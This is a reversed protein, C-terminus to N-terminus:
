PFFLKALKYYEPEVTKLEAVADEMPCSEIKTGRLTAMYGFKGELILEMAKVGFKTGLVRDFASPSGGRQTHGLVVHRTDVKAMKKINEAIVKGVGLKALLINGFGDYEVEETELELILDTSRIGEAVAVICYGDQDYARKVIKVVEDISFPEEPILIIHASSAIGAELTIWGAHRGMIEVVITRHHSRATTHLRDIAETAITVATNFGFTYDTASLDNDITKPVGVFPLGEKTFKDAAGLTDDGGIAIIAELELKKFTEKAKEVGGKVKFPNVRSSGLITGGQDCISCVDQKTLIVSDKDLLGQWGDKIGIVEYGEKDAKYVIGRIVANMGPTDGGSTLVGIRKSM